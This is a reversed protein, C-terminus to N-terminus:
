SPNGKAYKENWAQVMEAFTKDIMKEWEGDPFQIFPSYGILIPQAVDGRMTFEVCNVPEGLHAKIQCGAGVVNQFVLRTPKM